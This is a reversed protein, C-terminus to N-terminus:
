RLQKNVNKGRVFVKAVTRGYSRGCPELTVRKGQVMKRLRAKAAQYGPQGREPANMNALRVHKSGCLGRKLKLSDGDTVSAVTRGPRRRPKHKCKKAM